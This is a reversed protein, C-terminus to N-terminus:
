RICWVKLVRMLRISWRGLRKWSDALSSGGPEASARELEEDTVQANAWAHVLKLFVEEPLFQGLMRGAEDCLELERDLGNLKARLESDLIVKGM